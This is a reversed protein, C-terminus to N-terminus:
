QELCIVGYGGQACEQSMSHGDITWGQWHVHWVNFMAAFGSASTWNTCNDADTALEGVGYSGAWSIALPTTAGTADFMVPTAMTLGLPDGDHFIPMGDARVWPAGGTNMRAGPSEGTNAVLALFTGALGAGGAESACAADAADRGATAPLWQASVFARRGETTEVTIDSDADVGFCLLRATATCPQFAYDTWWGAGAGLGGIGSFGEALDETWGSCLSTGDVDYAVGDATTGTWVYDPVPVENGSEDTVPPFFFEGALVQQLDRAFPKGDTRLWGRAGALRDRADNGLVSLWARYSGALGAAEARGQCIADAGEVGGLSGGTHLTSTVFVLNPGGDAGTSSGGDSSSDTGPGVTTSTGSGDSGITGSSGSSGGPGICVMAECSLGPDCGGGPTCSCTETGVACLMANPDIIVCGTISLAFALVFAPDFRSRTRRQM